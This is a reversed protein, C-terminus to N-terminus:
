SGESRRDCLTVGITRGRGKGAYNKFPGKYKQDYSKRGVHVFLCWIDAPLLTTNCRVQGDIFDVDVKEGVDDENVTSEGADVISEERNVDTKQRISDVPADQLLSNVDYVGSWDINSHHCGGKGNQVPETLTGSFCEGNSMLEAICTM